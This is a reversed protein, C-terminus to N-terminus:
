LLDKGTFLKYTRNLILYPLSIGGLMLEMAICIYMVTDETWGTYFSLQQMLDNVEQRKEDNKGFKFKYYCYGAMILGSISWYTILNNM